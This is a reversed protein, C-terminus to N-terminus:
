KIRGQNKISAGPSTPSPEPHLVLENGDQFKVICSNANPLNPGIWQTSQITVNQIAKAGTASDQIKVKNFDVTYMREKSFFRGDEQWQGLKFLDRVYDPVCKQLNACLPTIYGISSVLLLSTIITKKM